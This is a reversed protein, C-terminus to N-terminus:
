HTLVKSLFDKARSSTPASFFTEPDTEEVIEGGAM